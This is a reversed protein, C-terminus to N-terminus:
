AGETKELEKKVEDCERPLNLETFIELAAELKERANKPDNMERALIGWNCYCYGLGPRNGLEVCLAEQKKHLAMAEDLQGWDGVIVAQNGYSVQLSHKNGLEVCLAEQKKHLAMAEDLKGWAQLIGGQNGYSIQM